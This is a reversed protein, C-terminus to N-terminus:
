NGFVIFYLIDSYSLAQSFLLYKEIGYESKIVVENYLVSRLYEKIQRRNVKQYEDWSPNEAALVSALKKFDELYASDLSSIDPQTSILLELSAITTNFRTLIEHMTITNKSIIVNIYYLTLYKFGEFKAIIVM